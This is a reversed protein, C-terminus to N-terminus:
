RRAPCHHALHRAVAQVLETAEAAAVCMAVVAVLTTTQLRGM